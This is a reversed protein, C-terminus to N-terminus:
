LPPEIKKGAAQHRYVGDPRVALHETSKRDGGTAELRACLVDGVKEHAAVRVVITDKGCRYQWRTGVKLPFLPVDPLKGQAALPAPLCLLCALVLARHM